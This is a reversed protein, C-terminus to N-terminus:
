KDEKGGFDSYFNQLATQYEDGSDTPHLLDYWRIDTRAIKTMCDTIYVRYSLEETRQNVKAVVYKM